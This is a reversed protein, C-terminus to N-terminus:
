TVDQESSGLMCRVPLGYHTQNSGQVKFPPVYMETLFYIEHQVVSVSSTYSYVTDNKDKDASQTLM